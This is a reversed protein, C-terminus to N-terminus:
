YNSSAFMANSLMALAWVCELHDTLTKECIDTIFNWVKITHDYSASAIRNFPLEILNTITSTHGSFSISSDEVEISSPTDISSTRHSIM